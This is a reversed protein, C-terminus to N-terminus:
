ARNAPPYHARSLNLKLAKSGRRAYPQVAIRLHVSAVNTRKAFEGGVAFAEQLTGHGLVAHRGPRMVPYQFYRPRNGVQFARGRDLGLVNRLRDLVPRQVPREPRLFCCHKTDHQSTRTSRYSGPLGVCPRTTAPPSSNTLWASRAASGSPPRSPIRSFSASDAIAFLAQRKAFDRPSRWRPARFPDNGRGGGWMGLVPGCRQQTEADDKSFLSRSCAYAQRSEGGALWPSM